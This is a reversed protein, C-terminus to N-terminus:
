HNSHSAPPGFLAGVLLRRDAAISACDVLVVPFRLVLTNERAHGSELSGIM